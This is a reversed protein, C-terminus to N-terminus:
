SPAGPCTPLRMTPVSLSGRTGALSLLGAAASADLEELHRRGIVGAGVVAIRVRGTM